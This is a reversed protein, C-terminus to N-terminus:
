RQPDMIRAPQIPKSPHDILTLRTNRSCRPQHDSVLLHVLTQIVVMNYRRLFDFRTLTTNAGRLFKYIAQGRPIGLMQVAEDETLSIAALCFISYLLAQYDFSISSMDAAAQVMYQQVTPAHIIKILPNVRDLFIQWLKFAQVPDLTPGEDHRPSAANSMCNHMDYDPHSEDSPAFSSADPDESEIINKMNQIQLDRRMLCVPGDRVSSTM